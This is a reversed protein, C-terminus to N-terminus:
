NKQEKNKSLSSPIIYFAVDAIDAAGPVLKRTTRLIFSRIDSFLHGNTCAIHTRWFNVTNHRSPEAVENRDTLASEVSVTDDIM